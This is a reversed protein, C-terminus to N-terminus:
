IESGSNAQVAAVDTADIVGSLDIDHLFNTGDTTGARGKARLIDSSTVSRSAHVDGAIFALAASASAGGNIGSLSVIVRQNAPIASLTVEITSGVAVASASGVPVLSANTCGATGAASIPMDFTFVLKHEGAAAARPEVSVAGGIGLTHDITVEFLGAAGHVKPSKVSTVVPGPIFTATVFKAADMTVQCQGTGTCAGSWGSFLSSGSPVAVLTVVVGPNLDADCASPCNIVSAPSTSVVSGTGLGSLSVTLTQQPATTSTFTGAVGGVTLTTTVSTIVSGSTTHQVCVSQGPDINGAVATFTGNCGISYQGNSVTVPASANTGTITVANSTVTANVAVNAQSTFSFADPTTDCAVTTLSFGGGRPAGAISVTATTTTGCTASASQRLTVHQGELITTPATAFAGGDIAYETGANVALPQPGEPLGSIRITNSTRQEGLPVDIQAIFFQANADLNLTGSQVTTPVLRQSTTGDGLQGYFNFGWAVVTGDPRVALSHSGGAAVMTAFPLGTVQAPSLRNTTTGDGVRGNANYGWAFVTADTRLAVSHFEGVAVHSVGTLIQVPATRDTTSGDGLQGQNNRGWAWLTGDSKLALAHNGHSGAAIDIVGSLLSVQVPVLRQTTTGDGLQGFTNDGWAWVTGNSKLALTHDDGGVVRVVDTLGPVQVPANRNTTSNDGLQGKGNYGWTWVTGDSERLAASHFFGAAVRSMGTLGTVQTASTRQTTTADGLQGFSNAGWSWVTGDSRLALMHGAGAAIRLVGSISAQVPALSNGLAGNGLQGESNRGWTFVTGDSRLGASFSTGARVQQTGTFTTPATIVYFPASVGGITLTVLTSTDASGSATQRVCVTQGNSIVGAADTFSGGCGISYDGIGAISIAAPTNIGAVTIANSTRASGTAVGAQTVFAFADPTSDCAVTTVSFDHTAVGITVTMTATANCTNAATIRATVTQGQNVTGAATTYAGNGIRYEGGSVTIAGGAGSAVTITNSERVGGIPASAQPLFELAGLDLSFSAGGSAVVNVPTGRCNPTTENNGLQGTTNRGWAMVSGDSKLALSHVSGGAVSVVDTLNAVAVPTTQAPCATAGASLGCSGSAPTCETGLQANSNLGWAVVTGDNKLALSHSQGTALAAVNALGTVTVPTTTSSTSGNGLQGSFNQGWAVVSGDALLALSHDSTAGTAIAVANTIGSVQVPTDSSGGSTGNGLQRVSNDGWAWVTGDSKLAISHNQGAVVRIAGSVASVQLPTSSSSGFYSPGQGLQKFSNDGFAWVTGDSKQAITHTNGGSAQTVGSLGSVSTPTHPLTDRGLQGFSNSGWAFLLADARIGLAHGFGTGNLTIGALTTAKVPTSSNSCAGPEPCNGFQGNANNGWSWITGDSRVGSSTQNGATIRPTATGFSAAAQIASQANIIGDGCLLTTCPDSVSPFARSTSRLLEKIEAPTLTPNVAQMLSVVGTVHAAAVSTGYYPRYANDNLASTTGGDSTSLIAVTNDGAEGGPAAVALPSGTNAYSARGGDRRVAAVAIVGPCNAPSYASASGADNGAGTVVPINQGVVFSIASALDPDCAGSAGTSLSLNIVDAPTANDPIEAVSIGGAWLIADAVDSVYGGCKGLARVPLIRTNWNVGAIGAANNASAAIIGAVASGHWTSDTVPCGLFLPELLPGLNETGASEGPTVWNGSDTPDPDRGDSDNARPQSAPNSVFDYGPLVRAAAIDAHPLIGTDIVAVVQQALGTTLDWAAPANIGEASTLSWQSAFSTDDPTASPFVLRDAHASLVDPHRAMARAIAQVAALPRRGQLRLVKHGEAMTRRYRVNEGAISALAAALQPGQGRGRFASDYKLRVVIQDTGTDSRAAWGTSAVCALIFAALFRTIL